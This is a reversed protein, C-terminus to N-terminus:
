PSSSSERIDIRCIPCKVSTEFWQDICKKHYLHGCSNIKRWDTTSEPCAHDQCVACIVSGEVETHPCLSTATTIQEPTPRVVVPELEELMSLLHHLRDPQMPQLLTIVYQLPDMSQITRYEITGQLYRVPFLIRTQNRIYQFEPSLTGERYLIDPFLNHLDDLLGYGYHRRYPDM